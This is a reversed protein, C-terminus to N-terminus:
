FALRQQSFYYWPNGSGGGGVDTAVFNDIELGNLTSSAVFRIGARGTATIANDASSLTLVGNVYLRKTANRIELKVSYNTSNTLTASVSDLLSPTGSVFKYLRWGEGAVFRAYYYTDSATDARGLIGANSAAANVCYFDAEVDYESTAPVGSAYWRGTNNNNGYRLRNGQITATGTASQHVAWTAGIEGVHSALATGNTDTMTDSVFPM